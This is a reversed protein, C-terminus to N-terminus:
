AQFAKPNIKWKTTRSSNISRLWNNKALFEIADTALMRNRGIGAWERMYVDRATFPNPLEDLHSIIAKANELTVNVESNFLIRAHSELYNTYAIAKKVSAVSVSTFSRISETSPDYSSIIENILALKPVLADYKRLHSEFVPHIHVKEYKKFLNKWWKQYRIKADDDFTVVRDRIDSDEDFGFDHEDLALVFNQVRDYVKPDVLITESHGTSIASPTVLISFRNMSGDNQIGGSLIAALLPKLKDPQITGFISLVMDQASLQKTTARDVDYSGFGTYCELLYAKVEENGKRNLISLLGIIEDIALLFGNKNELMLKHISALTINSTKYRKKSHSRNNSSARFLRREAKKILRRRDKNNLACEAQELIFKSDKLAIQYKLNDVDQEANIEKSKSIFSQDAQRILKDLLKLAILSGPTKKTGPAGIIMSWLNAAVLFDISDTPAIHLKHGILSAFVPYLTAVIYDPPCGICGAFEEVFNRILKPISLLDLEQVVPVCSNLDVPESWTNLDFAEIFEKLKVKDINSDMQKVMFNNLKHNIFGPLLFSKPISVNYEPFYNALESKVEQMVEKSCDEILYIAVCKNVEVQSSSYPEIPLEAIIKLCEKERGTITVKLLQQNNNELSDIDVKFHINSDQANLKKAKKILTKKDKATLKESPSNPKVAVVAGSLSPVGFDCRGGTSQRLCAKAIPNESPNFNKVIAEKSIMM